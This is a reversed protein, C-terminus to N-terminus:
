PRALRAARRVLERNADALSPTPRALIDAPIVREPLDYLVEFQSTRGAIALDGALLPLRPGPPHQVLELGM